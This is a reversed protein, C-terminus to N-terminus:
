IPFETLACTISSSGLKVELVLTFRGHYFKRDTNCVPIHNGLIWHLPSSSNEHSCLAIFLISDLASYLVFLFVFAGCHIVGSYEEGTPITLFRAVRANTTEATLLATNWSLENEAASWWWRRFLCYIYEWMCICVCTCVRECVLVSMYKSM